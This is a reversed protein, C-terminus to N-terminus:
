RCYLDFAGDTVDLNISSMNFSFVGRLRRTCPSAELLVLRGGQFHASHYVTNKRHLTENYIVKIQEHDILDHDGPELDRDLFLGITTRRNGVKGDAIVQWIWQAPARELESRLTLRGTLSSTRFPQTNISAAFRGEHVAPHVLRRLSPTPRHM